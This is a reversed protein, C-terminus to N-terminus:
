SALSRTVRDQIKRREAKLLESVYVIADRSKGQHWGSCLLQNVEGQARKLTRARSILHNREPPLMPM